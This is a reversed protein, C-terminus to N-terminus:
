PEGTSYALRMIHNEHPIAIPATLSMSDPSYNTAYGSMQNEQCMTYMYMYKTAVKVTSLSRRVVPETSVIM